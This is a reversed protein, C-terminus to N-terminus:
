GGGGMKKKHLIRFGPDPVPLFCKRILSLYVPDTVSNEDLADDLYQRQSLM